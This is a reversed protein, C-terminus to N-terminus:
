KVNVADILKRTISADLRATAHIESGHVGLRLGALLPAAGPSNRMPAILARVADGVSAAVAPTSCGIVVDVDTDTAIDIGARISVPGKAMDASIGAAALGAAPVIGAVWVMRGHDAGAVLAALDGAVKPANPDLAETLAAESSALVVGNKTWTVWGNDAASGTAYYVKRGALTKTQLTAGKAKVAAEFCALTAREDLKGDLVFLVKGSGNAGLVVNGFQAASLTECAAPKNIGLIAERVKDGLPTSAIRPLDAGIVVQADAPLYALARAVHPRPAGPKAPPPAEPIPPLEPPAPTAAPAAAPPASAVPAPQAPQAPKSSSSSCALVLSSLVLSFKM